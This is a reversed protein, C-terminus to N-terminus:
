QLSEVFAAMRTRLPELNTLEHETQILLDPVGLQAVRRKADPYICLHPPCFNVLLQIIGKAGAKKTQEVLVNGW